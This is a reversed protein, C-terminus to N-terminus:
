TCRQHVDESSSSKPVPMGGRCRERVRVRVRWLLRTACEPGYWPMRAAIGVVGRGGTASPDHLFSETEIEAGCLWFKFTGGRGEFDLPHRSRTQPKRSSRSWPSNHTYNQWRKVSTCETM